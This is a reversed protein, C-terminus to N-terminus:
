FESQMEFLIVEWKQVFKCLFSVCLHSSQHLGRKQLRLSFSFQIFIVHKLFVSSHSSCSMASIAYTLNVICSFNTLSWKQRPVLNGPSDLQSAGNRESGLVAHNQNTKACLILMNQPVNPLLLYTAIVWVLMVVKMKRFLFFCWVMSLQSM